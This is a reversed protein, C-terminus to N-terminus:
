FINSFDNLNYRHTTLLKKEIKNKLLQQKQLIIKKEYDTKYDVIVKTLDKKMEEEEPVKPVNKQDKQPDPTQERKRKENVSKEGAIKKVIEDSTKNGKLKLKGGTFSM